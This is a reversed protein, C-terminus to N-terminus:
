RARCAPLCTSRRSQWRRAGASGPPPRRPRHARPLRRRRLRHLVADPLRRGVRLRLRAGARRRPGRRAPLGRDGQQLDAGRAGACLDVLDVCARVYAEANFKAKLMEFKLFGELSAITRSRSASTRARRSTATPTCSSRPRPSRSRSSTSSASRASSRRGTPTRRSASAPTWRPDGGCRPDIPGGTLGVEGCLAFTPMGHDIEGYRPWSRGAARWASAQPLDGLMDIREIGVKPVCKSQKPKIEIRFAIRQLFVPGVTRDRAHRLEVEAGAHEFTATSRIGADGRSASPSRRRAARPAHLDGVPGRRRLTVKLQELGIPGISANAVEFSLPESASAVAKGPSIVVPHDSTAGGFQAPLAVHLAFRSSTGDAGLSPPEALGTVKLGNLRAGAGLKFGSLHVGDSVGWSFSGNFLDVSPGQVAPLSM